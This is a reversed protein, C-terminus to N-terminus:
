QGIGNCQGKLYTYGGFCGALLEIDFGPPQDYLTPVRGPRLRRWLCRLGGHGTPETTKEIQGMEYLSRLNTVMYNQSVDNKEAIQATSLWSDTLAAMALERGM